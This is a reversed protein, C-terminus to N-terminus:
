TGETVSIREADRGVRDTHDACGADLGIGAPAGGAPPGHVPVPLQGDGAVGVGDRRRRDFRERESQGRDHREGREHAAGATLYSRVRATVAGAAPNPLVALRAGERAANTLVQWTQYARGFEFIGVTVLLLLPLTLATELLATGREGTLRRRMRTM